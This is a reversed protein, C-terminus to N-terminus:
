EIPVHEPLVLVYHSFVQREGLPLGFYWLSKPAHPDDVTVEDWVEVCPKKDDRRQVKTIELSLKKRMLGRKTEVYLVYEETVLSVGMNKVDIPYERVKVMGQALRHQAAKHYSYGLLGGVALAFLVLTVVIAKALRRTAVWVLSGIGAVVLASVILSLM